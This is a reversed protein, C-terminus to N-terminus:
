SFVPTDTDAGREANSAKSTNSVADLTHQRTSNLSVDTHTHALPIGDGTEQMLMLAAFQNATTSPM